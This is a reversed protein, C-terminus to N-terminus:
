PTDIRRATKYSGVLATRGGPSFAVVGLRLGEQPEAGLVVSRLRHIEGQWIGIFTRASRELGADGAERAFRIGEVLQLLGRGAEVSRHQSQARELAVTALQRNTERLADRTREGEAILDDNLKKFRRAASSRDAAYVVSIVMVALLAVVALAAAAGLAPNRRCWRWLREGRGVARARIPEGDLFRQLDDALAAASDYRRR